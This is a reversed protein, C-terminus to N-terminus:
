YLIKARGGCSRMLCFAGKADSHRGIVELLAKAIPRNPSNECWIRLSWPLEWYHSTTRVTGDVAPLAVLSLRLKRTRSLWAKIQLTARALFCKVQLRWGTVLGDDAFFADFDLDGSHARSSAVIQAGIFLTRDCWYRLDTQPAITTSVLASSGSSPQAISHRARCHSRLLLRSALITHVIIECESPTPVGVQSPDLVSRASSIDAIAITACPETRSVFPWSPQLVIITTTPRFVLGAGSTHTSIRPRAPRSQGCPTFVRRSLSVACLISTECSRASDDSPTGVPPCRLGQTTRWWPAHERSRPTM